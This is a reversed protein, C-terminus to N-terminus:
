DNPTLHFRYIAEFKFFFGGNIVPNLRTRDDGFSFASLGLDITEGQQYVEYNNSSYGLKGRLLVQRDFANYQLYSAFELSSLDVYLQPTPAETLNFSRGIGYYDLGVSLAGFRYNIDTAIPLSVDMEFKQNESLYYWGIIPTTFFGFAEQSGYAGFRYILREKKQYKLLAFGGLYFDDGTINGYDSAIKPLAVITTSWRDNFTTAVGLKLTTSYLSVFTTNPALQLHNRSYSLGSILANNENLVIPFTLDAEVSQVQTEGPTEEFTNQFTRGFGIKVLDVYDQASVTM